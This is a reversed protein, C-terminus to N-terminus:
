FTLRQGAESVYTTNSDSSRSENHRSDRNWKHSSIIKWWSQTRLRAILRPDVIRERNVSLWIKIGNADVPRRQALAAPLCLLVDWWVRPEQWAWGRQWAYCFQGFLRVVLVPIVLYLPYRMIASCAENRAHRRHNRQENRNLASFEHYVLIENWQLVRYGADWARLCLDPEEYTHFFFEPFLGTKELMARRIVAGCAAYSNCHWEGRLRGSDQMREPHEPGIVQLSIIGLDPEREMREVIRRCADADVLRSDDDLAIIYKGRARRLIDNRAVISGVNKERRVINVQSFRSRVMEYTGDTSADDVVLIEMAPWLQAECNELTKRLEEVRNRTAIMFTILPENAM